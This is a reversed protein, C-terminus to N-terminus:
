LVRFPDYFLIFDSGQLFRNHAYGDVKIKVHISIESNLAFPTLACDIKPYLRVKIAKM